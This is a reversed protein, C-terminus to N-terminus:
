ANTTLSVLPAQPVASSTGPVAARLWPPFASIAETDHAGAPLQPAPPQYVSLVPLEWASTTLLAWWCVAGLCAAGMVGRRAGARVQCGAGAEKVMRLELNVM